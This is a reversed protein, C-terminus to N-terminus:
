RADDNALGSFPSTSKMSSLASLNRSFHSSLDLSSINRDISSKRGHGCQLLPPLLPLSAKQVPFAPVDLLPPPKTVGSQRAGIFSSLSLFASRRNLIAPFGDDV